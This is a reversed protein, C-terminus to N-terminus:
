DRRQVAENRYLVRKGATWTPQAARYKGTCEQTRSHRHCGIAKTERAEHVGRQRRSAICVMTYLVRPVAGTNGMRSSGLRAQRQERIARM